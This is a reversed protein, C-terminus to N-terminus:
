IFLYICNSSSIHLLIFFWVMQLLETSNLRVKEDVVRPDMFFIVVGYEGNTSISKLLSKEEKVVVDSETKPEFDLIHNELTSNM